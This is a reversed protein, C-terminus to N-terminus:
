GLLTIYLSLGLRSASFFSSTCRRNFSYLVSAECRVASVGRIVRSTSENAFM